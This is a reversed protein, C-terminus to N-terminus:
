QWNSGYSCVETFKKDFNLSKWELFHTQYYIDDAFYRGNQEPSSLNVSNGFPSYQGRPLLWHMHAMSVWTYIDSFSPFFGQTNVRFCIPIKKWHYEMYIYYKRIFNTSYLSYKTLMAFVSPKNSWCWAVFYCCFLGFWTCLLFFHFAPNWVVKQALHIYVLSPAWQSLSHIPSVHKQYLHFDLPARDWLRARRWGICLWQVLPAGQM